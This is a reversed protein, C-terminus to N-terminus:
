LMLIEIMWSSFPTMLLYSLMIVDLQMSLIMLICCFCCLGLVSGLPVGCNVYASSSKIGNVLTYQRRNTLYSRFINADGRIGYYELKDLLIDHNVTDFAKRFDIFIGIVYHKEDLFRKILDTVEILALLTSYFKRFGYQHCYWIKNQELFSILRKCIIKEFIKDFISLLSIPRYNNPDHRM